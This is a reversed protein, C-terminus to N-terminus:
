LEVPMDPCAEFNVFFTNKSVEPGLTGPNRPASDAFSTQVNQAVRIERGHSFRAWCNGVMEEEDFVTQDHLFARVEVVVIQSARGSM